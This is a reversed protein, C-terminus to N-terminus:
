SRVVAAVHGTKGTLEIEANLNPWWIYSRAIAKMAIIGPHEEHLEQLLRNRLSPPIIVRMGRLVCGQEVSLEHRQTFYPKLEDSTLYNPWGSLTYNLLRALVPDRRTESSIEKADIPLEKLDSFFFLEAEEKLPPANCPLRSLADANGHEKSPRYEVQYSYAQLIVAWRQMRAVALTPVATKPGLITVLAKHDTYLHIM